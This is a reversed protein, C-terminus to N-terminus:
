GKRSRKVRIDLSILYVHLRHLRSEYLLMHLINLVLLSVLINFYYRIDNIGFYSYIFENWLIFASKYKCHTKINQFFFRIWHIIIFIWFQPFNLDYKVSFQVRTQAGQGLSTYRAHIGADCPIRNEIDTACTCVWKRFVCQSIAAQLVSCVWKRFVRQGLPETAPCQHDTSEDSGHAHQDEHCRVGWGYKEGPPLATTTSRVPSTNRDSGHQYLIRQNM